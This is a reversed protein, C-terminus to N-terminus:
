AQSAVAVAPRLFGFNLLFLVLHLCVAGFIAHRLRKSDEADELAFAQYEGGEQAQAASRPNPSIPKAKSEM